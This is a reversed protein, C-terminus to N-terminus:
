MEKSWHFLGILHLVLYLCLSTGWGELRVYIGSTFVPIPAFHCKCECIINCSAYLHYKIRKIDNVTVFMYKHSKDAVSGVRYTEILGIGGVKM